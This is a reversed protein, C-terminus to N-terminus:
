ELIASIDLHKGVLFELSDAAKSLSSVLKPLPSDKSSPTSAYMSSPIKEILVKQEVRKRWFPIQSHHM